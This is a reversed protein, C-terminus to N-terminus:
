NPTHSLQNADTGPGVHGLRNKATAPVEEPNSWVGLLACTRSATAKFSGMKVKAFPVTKEFSGGDSQSITRPSTACVRQM